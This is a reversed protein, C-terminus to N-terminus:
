HKGQEKCFILKEIMQFNNPEQLVVYDGHDPHPYKPRFEIVRETTSTFAPDPFESKGYNELFQVKEFKMAALQYPRATTSQILDDKLQNLTLSIM